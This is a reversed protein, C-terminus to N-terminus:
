TAEVKNEQVQECALQRTTLTSWSGQLSVRLVSTGLWSGASVQWGHLQFVNAISGRTTCDLRLHSSGLDTESQLRRLPGLTSSGLQAM